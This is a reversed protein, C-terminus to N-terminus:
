PYNSAHYYKPHRKKRQSTLRRSSCYYPIMLEIIAYYRVRATCDNDNALSRSTVIIIPVYSVLSLLKITSSFGTHAIYLIVYKILDTSRCALSFVLIFTNMDIFYCTRLLYTNSTLQKTSIINQM